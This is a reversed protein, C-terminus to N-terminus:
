RGAKVLVGLESLGYKDALWRGAEASQGDPQVLYARVYHLTAKAPDAEEVGQLTLGQQYQFFQKDLVEGLAQVVLADGKEVLAADSEPFRLVDESIGFKVYAEHSADETSASVSRQLGPLTEGKADKLRADWTVVCTRTWRKVEYNFESYTDEERFQPTQGLREQADLLDRRAERVVDRREQLDRRKRAIRERQENVRERAKAVADRARAVDAGQKGEAETLEKELKVQENELKVLEAELRDLEVQERDVDEEARLMEKQVTQISTWQVKWDQNEVQKKGSVYRHVAVEARSTQTCQPEGLTVVAEVGAGKLPGGVQVRRKRAVEQTTAQYIRGGRDANGKLELKLGWQAGQMVEGRLRDRAQLDGDRGVLAAAQAYRVFAPGKKGEAEDKQAQAREQDAWGQLVQERPVTLLQAAADPRHRQIIGLTELAPKFQGAERQERAKALVRTTIAERTTPLETNSPWAQEAEKLRSFAGEFDGADLSRKSAELQSAALQRRAREIRELIAPEDPEDARADEYEALARAWDGQAAYRDGREVAQKWACAELVLALLLVLALAAKRARPFRTTSHRESARRAALRAQPELVMDNM